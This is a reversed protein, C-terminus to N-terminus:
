NFTSEICLVFVNQLREFALNSSYVPFLVCLNFRHCESEIEAGYETAVNQSNSIVLVGKGCHSLRLFLSANSTM